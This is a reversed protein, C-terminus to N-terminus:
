VLGPIKFIEVNDMNWTVRKRVAGSSRFLNLPQRVFSSGSLIVPLFQRRKAALTVADSGTDELQHSMGEGHAPVLADNPFKKYSEGGIANCRKAAGPSLLAGRNLTSTSISELKSNDRSRKSLTIKTSRDGVINAKPAQCKNASVARKADIVERRSEPSLCSWIERPLQTSRAKQDKRANKCMRKLKSNDKSRKSMTVKTSNDEGINAQLAQHIDTSMARQADIVERRSEPSLCSWIERPLQTSRAKQDKRASKCTRKLKSNNRSRKSLTVKTSNDEGINAQLAQHNDTSVACMADIVERRCEPSLGGWIEGSLQTSRGKNHAKREEKSMQFKAKTIEGQTLPTLRDWIEKYLTISPSHNIKGLEQLQNEAIPLYEQVLQPVGDVGVFKDSSHNALGQNQVRLTGTEHKNPSSTKRPIKLLEIPSGPLVQAVAATPLPSASAPAETGLQRIVGKMVSHTFDKSVDIPESQHQDHVWVNFARIRTRLRVDVDLQKIVWEEVNQVSVSRFIAAHDFGTECVQFTQAESFQLVDRLLQRFDRQEPSGQLHLHVKTQPDPLRSVDEEVVVDTANRCDTMSQTRPAVINPFMFEWLVSKTFKQVIDVPGSQGQIWHTWAVIRARLVLPLDLQDVVWREVDQVSVSQFIAAHDFGTECWRSAQDATFGLVDRLIQRFDRQEPRLEINREKSMPETTYPPHRYKPSSALELEM